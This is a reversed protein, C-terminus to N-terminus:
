IIHPIEKSPQLLMGHIFPNQLLGTILPFLQQPPISQLAKAFGEFIQYSYNEKSPSKALEDLIKPFLESLLPPVQKPEEV